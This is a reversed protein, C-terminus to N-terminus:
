PGPSRIPACRPRDVPPLVEFREATERPIDVARLPEGAVKRVCISTLTGIAAVDGRVVIVSQYRFTKATHDVLRIRVEIKRVAAAQLLRVLGIRAAM